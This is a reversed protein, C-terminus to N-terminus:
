AARPRSCRDSYAGFRCSWSKEIWIDATSIFGHFNYTLVMCRQCVICVNITSYASPLGALFFTDLQIAVLVFNQLMDAVLASTILSGHILAGIGGFNDYGMPARLLEDPLPDCSVGYHYGCPAIWLSALADREDNARRDFRAAVQPFGSQRRPMHAHDHRRV